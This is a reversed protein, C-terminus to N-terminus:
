DRNRRVIRKETVRLFKKGGSKKEKGEKEEEKKKDSFSHMEMRLSTARMSIEAKSTSDYVRKM